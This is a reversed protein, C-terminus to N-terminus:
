AMARRPNTLDGLERRKELPAIFDDKGPVDPLSSLRAVLMSFLHTRLQLFGHCTATQEQPPIM